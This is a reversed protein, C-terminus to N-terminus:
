RYITIVTSSPTPPLFQEEVTACMETEVEQPFRYTVVEGVLVLKVMVVQRM